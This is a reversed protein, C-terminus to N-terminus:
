LFRHSTFRVAVGRTGGVQEETRLVRARAVVQSGGAGSTSLRFLVLVREGPEPLDALQLYAGGGSVNALV